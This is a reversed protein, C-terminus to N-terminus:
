GAVVAAASAASASLLYDTLGRAVLCPPFVGALASALVACTAVAPLRRPCEWCSNGCALSTPSKSMAGPNPSLSLSLSLYSSQSLSNVHYYPTSRRFARPPPPTSDYSVLGSSALLQRCPAGLPAARSESRCCLSGRGATTLKLRCPSDGAAAACRCM